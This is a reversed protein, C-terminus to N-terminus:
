KQKWKFGIPDTAPTVFILSGTRPPVLATKSLQGPISPSIPYVWGGGRPSATFRYTVTEGRKAKAPVVEAKLEAVDALSKPVQAFAPSTTFLLLLALLSFRPM